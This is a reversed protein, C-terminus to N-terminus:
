VETALLGEPQHFHEEIVFVSSTPAAITAGASVVSSGDKDVCRKVLTADSFCVLVCIMLRSSM